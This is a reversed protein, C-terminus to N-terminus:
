EMIQHLLSRREIEKRGNIENQCCHRGCGSCSVMPWHCRRLMAIIPWLGIYRLCCLLVYCLRM